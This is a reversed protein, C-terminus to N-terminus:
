RQNWFPMDGDGVFTQTGDLGIVAVRLSPDELDIVSFVLADSDPSWVRHSLAYQDFFPLFQNIFQPSPAFTTVLRESREAVEIVYLSLRAAQRQVTQQAYQPTSIPQPADWEAFDDDDQRFPTLYAIYRGDPSWFFALAVNNTLPELLGTEADLLQIPGFFTRSDQVPSMFALEDNIPSWSLAVLGNHAVTRELAETGFGPRSSLVLEPGRQTVAGYALFTGSPSIGPAQFRGPPALNEELTDAVRSTFGLRSGSGSFGAHILLQQANDTWQWYFPSGTTLLQEPQGAEAIFLGIGGPYNALLSVRKSDPSWYLYFPTQRDSRYIEVPSSNVDDEYIHVFGGNLDAGVAAIRTGDPSWAPFQLRQEGSSLVTLAEGAPDVTALQGEPTIFAIRSQGAAVSLASVLLCLLLNKM